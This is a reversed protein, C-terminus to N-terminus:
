QDYAIRKNLYNTGGKHGFLRVAAKELCFPCGHCLPM